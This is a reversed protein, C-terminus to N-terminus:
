EKIGASKVAKEYRLQEAKVFRGFDAASGSGAIAGQKQLTARVEPLALVANLEHNLREVVPAPTKAPAFLGTWAVVDYGKFGPTEAV